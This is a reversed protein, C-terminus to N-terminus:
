NAAPLIPWQRRRGGRVAASGIGALGLCSRRVEGLSAGAVDVVEDLMRRLRATAEEESVRMLKVTGTSARALVQTEDALACRTKSGGADIGLYLSM